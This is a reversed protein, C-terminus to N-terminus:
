SSSAAASGPRKMTRSAVWGGSVTRAEARFARDHLAGEVEEGGHEGVGGRAGRQEFREAGAPALERGVLARRQCRERLERGLPDLGGWLVVAVAVPGRQLGLRRRLLFPRGSRGAEVGRRTGGLVGVPATFTRAPAAERGRGAAVGRLAAASGRGVRGRAGGAAVGRRRRDGIPALGSGRAGSPPGTSLVLQREAGRGNGGRTRTGGTGRVHRGRRQERQEAEGGEPGTLLLGHLRREVAAVRQHDHRGAAALAETVLEGGERAVIQGDDDRRQDGQHAVLALSQGVEAMRRDHQGGTLVILGRELLEAAPLRRDDEGRGLPEGRGRKAVRDLLPREGQEDDVLRVAHGLPPVIEAGVVQAERRHDALEAM